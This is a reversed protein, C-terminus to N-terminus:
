VTADKITGLLNGVWQGLGLNGRQGSQIDTVVSQVSVPTAKTKSRTGYPHRIHPKVKKLSLSM